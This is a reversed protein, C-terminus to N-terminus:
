ARQTTVLPEYRCTPRQARWREIALREAEAVDSAEVVDETSGIAAGNRHRIVLCVVFM